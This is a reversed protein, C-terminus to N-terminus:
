EVRKPSGARELAFVVIQAQHHVGHDSGDSPMRQLARGALILMADGAGQDFPQPCKVGVGPRPEPAQVRLGHCGSDAAFRASGAYFQWRHNGDAPMGRM